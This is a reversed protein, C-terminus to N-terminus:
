ILTGPLQDSRGVQTQSSDAAVNVFTKIFNAMTKDAAKIVSARLAHSLGPPKVPAEPVFPAEPDDLLDPEPEPEPDIPELEPDIPAFLSEPEGAPEGAEAARQAKETKAVQAARRLLRAAVTCCNLIYVCCTLQQQARM